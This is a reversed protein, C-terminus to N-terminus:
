NGILDLRLSIFREKLARCDPCNGSEDLMDRKKTDTLVIARAANGKDKMVNMSIEFQNFDFVHKECKKEPVEVEEDEEKDQEQEDKNEKKEEEEVEINIKEEKIIESIGELYYQFIKVYLSSDSPRVWKNPTEVEFSGKRYRIQIKILKDTLEKIREINEPLVLNDKNNNNYLLIEVGNDSILEEQINSKLFTLENPFERLRDKNERILIIRNTIEKVEDKNSQWYYDYVGNILTFQVQYGDFYIDTIKKIKKNTNEIKEITTTKEHTDNTDNTDSFLSTIFWAMMIILFVFGSILLITSKNPGKPGLPITLPELRKYKSYATYKEKIKNNKHTIYVKKYHQTNSNNLFYNISNEGTGYFCSAGSSNDEDNNYNTLKEISNLIPEFMKDYIADKKDLYLDLCSNLSEFINILVMSRETYISIATFGSRGQHDLSYTHITYIRHNSTLSISYFRSNDEEIINSERLDSTSEEVDVPTNDFGLFNSNFGGIGKHYVGWVLIRTSM